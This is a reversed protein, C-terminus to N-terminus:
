HPSNVGNRSEKLKDWIRGYTAQEKANLNSWRSGQCIKAFVRDESKSFKTLGVIRSGEVRPMDDLPLPLYRM